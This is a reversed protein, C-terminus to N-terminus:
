LLEVLVRGLLLLVAGVGRHQRVNLDRADERLAAHAAINLLVVSKGMGPRGGIVTVEGPRFGPVDPFEGSM